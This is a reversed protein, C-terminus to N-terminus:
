VTQRGDSPKLGQLHRIIDRGCNCLTVTAILEPFAYYLRPFSNAYLKKILYRYKNKFVDDEKRDPMSKNTKNIINVQM